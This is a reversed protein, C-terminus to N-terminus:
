NNNVFKLARDVHDQTLGVADFTSFGRSHGRGLMKNFYDNDFKREDDDFWVFRRNGAYKVLYASKYNVYSRLNDVNGPFNVYPLDSPLGVLSSIFKNANNEWSTAWVLDFSQALQDLLNNVVPNVYLRYATYASSNNKNKRDMDYFDKDDFGVPRDTKKDVKVYYDKMNYKKVNKPSANFVNLVGDVNLFALPKVKDM